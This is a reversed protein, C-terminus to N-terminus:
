EENLRGGAQGSQKASLGPGSQRQRCVGTARLWRRAVGGGAGMRARRCQSGAGPLTPDGVPGTLRWGEQVVGGQKM